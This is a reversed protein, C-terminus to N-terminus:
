KKKGKSIDSLVIDTLDDALMLLVTGKDQVNTLIVVSYGHEPIMYIISTAGLINGGSWIVGERADRDPLWQATGIAWGAGLPHSKGNLILPSTMEQFSAKKLLQNGQMANTFRAVDGATSVLGGGPIRNSPDVFKANRLKGEATVEYGESRNPIIEFVDYDRTNTMGAPKFVREQLYQMFSMGSAREVAMGLLTYAYSSYTISTGPPHELKDNKFAALSELINKYHRTNIYEEDGKYHRIGSTHRLLHRITIPAGKDPFEPVYKQIPADLDLKGEEALKYAAAATISKTLSAIPFVTAAKVPVFNELDAIGYGREWRIQNNRSIAISLGPVQHKSMYATIAKEVGTVAAAPLSENSQAFTSISLVSAYLLILFFKYYRNM